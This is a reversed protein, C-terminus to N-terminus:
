TSHHKLQEEKGKKEKTKERCECSGSGRIASILTKQNLGRQHNDASTLTLILSNEQGKKSDNVSKGGFGRTIVM